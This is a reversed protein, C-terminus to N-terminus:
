NILPDTLKQSLLMGHTKTRPFQFKSLTTRRQHPYTLHFYFPYIRSKKIGNVADISKEWLAQALKTSLVGRSLIAQLFLRDVDAASVPM